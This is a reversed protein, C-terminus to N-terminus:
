SDAELDSEQLCLMKLEGAVKKGKSIAAGAHVGGRPTLLKPDWMRLLQTKENPNQARPNEGSHNAPKRKQKNRNIAQHNKRM